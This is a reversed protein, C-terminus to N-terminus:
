ATSKTLKRSASKRCAPRYSSRSGTVPASAWRWQGGVAGCVGAPVGSAGRRARCLRCAHSTRRAAGIRAAAAAGVGDDPRGRQVGGDLWDADGLRASLQALRDRIGDLVLPPRAAAWPKDGELLRATALELIPPEVTNLAAFMWGIARARAAGDMVIVCGGRRLSSTGREAARGQRGQGGGRALVRAPQLQRGKGPQHFQAARARRM